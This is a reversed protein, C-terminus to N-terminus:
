ITGKEKVRCAKSTNKKACEPCRVVVPCSIHCYALHWGITEAEETKNVTIKANCDNCRMKYM